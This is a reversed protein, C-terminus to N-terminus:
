APWFTQYDAGALRNHTSDFSVDLRSQAGTPLNQVTTQHAPADLSASRGNSLVTATIRASQDSNNICRVARLFLGVDDWDLQWTVLGAGQQGLTYTQTAM